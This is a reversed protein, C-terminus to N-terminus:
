TMSDKRPYSKNSVNNENPETPVSLVNTGYLIGVIVLALISLVLLFLLANQIHIVAYNMKKRHQDSYKGLSKQNNIIFGKKSKSVPPM